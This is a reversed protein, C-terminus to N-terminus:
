LFLGLYNWKCTLKGRCPWRDYAEPEAPYSSPQFYFNFKRLWNHKYSAFNISTSNNIKSVGYLVCNKPFVESIKLSREYCFTKKKELVIKLFQNQWVSSKTKFIVGWIDRSTTKIINDGQTDILLQKGPFEINDFSILFRKTTSVGGFSPRGYIRLWGNHNLLDWLFQFGNERLNWCGFTTQLAVEPEAKWGYLLQPWAVPAVFLRKNAKNWKRLEINGFHYPTINWSIELFRWWADNQCSVNTFLMRQTSAFKSLNSSKKIVYPNYGSFATLHTM